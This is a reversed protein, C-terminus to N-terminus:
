QGSTLKSLFQSLFQTTDPNKDFYDFWSELGQLQTPCEFGADGLINILEQSPSFWSGKRVIWEWMVLLDCIEKEVWVSKGNKQNYRIPYTIEVGNTENNSKVIRVKCYHGIIKGKADVIQDGKWRALYEFVFDAGHELAHGGNAGGQRQTPAPGSMSIKISDRLQSIFFAYHGRKSLALSTKKLFVSTIVPGGAVQAADELGKALDDRKAMMDVSDVIFFYKTGTQNNRILEGMFGFVTEFVNSEFVFCTGDEWDEVDHVFKVGSREKVEPSLRGESMIYVGRRKPSNDTTNNLFHLLFDLVGSTKGGGAIGTARHAGPPLGGGIRANVLLSSCRTKYYHTEEFNYHDEKNKRLFALAQKEPTIIKEESVEEEKKKAM